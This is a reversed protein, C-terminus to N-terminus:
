KIDHSDPKKETERGLFTNAKEMGSSQQMGYNDVPYAHKAPSTVDSMINGKKLKFVDNQFFTDNFLAAV